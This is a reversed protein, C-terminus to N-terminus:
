GKKAKKKKPKKPYYDAIECLIDILPKVFESDLVTRHNEIMVYPTASILRFVIDGGKEKHAVQIFDTYSTPTRSIQIELKADDDNAIHNPM